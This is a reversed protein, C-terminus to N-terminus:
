PFHRYYSCFPENTARSVVIILKGNHCHNRCNSLSTPNGYISCAVELDSCVVFTGSLDQADNSQAKKKTFPGALYNESSNPWDYPRPQPLCPQSQTPPITPIGYRSQHYGMSQLVLIPKVPPPYTLPRSHTHNGRIRGSCAWNHVVTEPTSRGLKEAALADAWSSSHPLEPPPQPM